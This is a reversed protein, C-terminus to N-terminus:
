IWIASGSRLQRYLRAHTTAARRANGFAIRKIGAGSVLLENARNEIWKTIDSDAPGGNTPNYKFGGDTPPNHSPTIVIGDALGSNRGRNYCLIAHSIAPTPTYEDDAAVMVEVGNAGLVELASAFAPASLADYRDGHIPTWRHGATQPVRLHGPQHRACPERQIGCRVLFRSSRLHRVRGAAGCDGSGAKRQLVGHHAASCEGAFGGARAQRRASEAACELPRWRPARTKGHAAHARDMIQCFSAAGDSQLQAALADVDVGPGHVFDAWYGAEADAGDKAMVGNLKGSQEFATLTKEPMTDITEPAALAEVYLGPPAKPDKTGTSAWLMRQKRAGKAQLDQWRKSAILDCHARYTRQMIAIGLRNGLDAPVKDAVARDWRSVFVSAVSNIKPDLGAALRREIARMYADAVKLYQERSFLLTVNIPVGAFIAAEIAPVGAPTGPIKVYLNPRNAQKHIRLAADITGQTDNALLPSVEMSVWGDLGSTRDFEPRFLDAARRLDELALEIFLNEGSMGAAAKQQIGKDYAATKGIAEDFITPNSTLGTVSFREIYRRLTGM